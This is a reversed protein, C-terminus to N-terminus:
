TDAEELPVNLEEIVNLQNSFHSLKLRVGNNLKQDSDVYGNLAIEM